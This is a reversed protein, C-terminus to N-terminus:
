AALGLRADLQRNVLGAVATYRETHLRRQHRDTQDLCQYCRVRGIQNEVKVRRAAFARNFARDEESLECKPKRKKPVEVMQTFKESKKSKTQELDTDKDRDKDKGKGKGRPAAAPKDLGTYALDGLIHANPPLAKALGSERALTIDATRGPVSECVDVIRGSTEAVVVQTKITHCRKKGSFYTDAEKRDRPATVRQEFSDVIVRLAPETEYLQSLTRRSKPGPDTMKMTDRGARALLPVIRNVLRSVTSDSVGFLFGLVEHTPYVRLWVVALLLQDRADLKFVAGAGIARQRDDRTLRTQQAEHMLPLVDQYLCDFEAVKLGTMSKFVQPNRTLNAYRAIM